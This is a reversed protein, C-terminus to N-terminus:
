VPTSPVGYGKADHVTLLLNLPFHEACNRTFPRTDVSPTAGTQDAVRFYNESKCRTVVRALTQSTETNIMQSNCSEWMVTVGVLGWGTLKPIVEPKGTNRCNTM